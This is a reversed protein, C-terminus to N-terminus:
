LAEMPISALFLDVEPAEDEPDFDELEDLGEGAEEAEVEAVIRAQMAGAFTPTREALIM